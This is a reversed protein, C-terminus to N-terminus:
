ARGCGGGSPPVVPGTRLGHWVVLRDANSVLEDRSGLLRFVDKKGRECVKKMQCGGFSDIITADTLHQPECVTPEHYEVEIYIGGGVKLVRQIESTVKAFDDVHDLANVSIVADFFGDPYPMSEGPASSFEVDYDDLPWGAKKYLDILPDLGHRECGIFQLVPALPGCGVELVRKGSFSDAKLQLQELYAPRLHHATLVANLAPNQSVEQRQGASPPRLGWWDRETGQYWALLHSLEAQWFRHEAAYKRRARWAPSLRRLVGDGKDIVAKIM